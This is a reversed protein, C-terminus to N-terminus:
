PPAEVTQRAAPHVLGFRRFAFGMGGAALVVLGLWLAM